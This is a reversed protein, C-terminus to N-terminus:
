LAGPTVRGDIWLDALVGDVKQRAARTLEAAATAARHGTKEYRHDPRWEDLRPADATWGTLRYRWAAPDLPIWWDLLQDGAAGLEHGLVRHLLNTELCAKKVCEPGFGALHWAQDPSPEAATLLGEADRVHRCAASLLALQEPSLPSM